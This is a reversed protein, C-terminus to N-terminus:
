EFPGGTWDAGPMWSTTVIAKSKAKSADIMRNIEAYVIDCEETTMRTKWNRFEAPFWSTTIPKHQYFEVLM